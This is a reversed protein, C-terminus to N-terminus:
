PARRQHAGAGLACGPTCRCILGLAEDAPFRPQPASGPVRARTYSVEGVSALITTTRTGRRGSPADVGAAQQLPGSMLTGLVKAAFSLAAARLDGEVEGLDRAASRANAEAKVAVGVLDLAAARIRESVTKGKVSRTLVYYPGM